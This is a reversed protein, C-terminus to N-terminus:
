SKILRPSLGQSELSLAINAGKSKAPIRITTHWQAQNIKRYGAVIGIYQTAQALDLNINKNEGPRIEMTQKDILDSGLIAASNNALSSYNANNFTFPSKLQYISIVVPSALGNVDPNLYRASQIDVAVGNPGSACATLGTSLVIVAFLKLIQKYSM